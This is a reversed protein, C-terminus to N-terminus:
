PKKGSMVGFIYNLSAQERKEQRAKEQARVEKIAQEDKWSSYGSVLLVLVVVLIALLLDNSSERKM